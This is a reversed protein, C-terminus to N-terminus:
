LCRVRSEYRLPKTSKRSEDVAAVYRVLPIASYASQSRAAFRDAAATWYLRDACSSARLAQVSSEVALGSYYNKNLSAEVWVVGALSAGLLVDKLRSM